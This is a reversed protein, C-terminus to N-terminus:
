EPLVEQSIMGLDHGTRADVFEWLRCHTRRPQAAADSAPPTGSRACGSEVAFGWVRVNVAGAPAADTLVGYYAQVTAPIPILKPSGSVLLNYAHQASLTRGDKPASGLPLFTTSPVGSEVHVTRGPVVATDDAAPVRRTSTPGAGHRGHVVLVVGVTALVLLAGILVVVGRRGRM